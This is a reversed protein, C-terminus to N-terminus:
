FFQHIMPWRASVKETDSRNSQAEEILQILRSVASNNATATSKIVLQTNGTNITGGSVKDGPSKSVPRSEGTLSCEDVTSKGEIVVGDCPIKDGTRVSVVAGVAVSNAPLIVVQKTLPNIVNAYEPRLSVIASLANRARATARTELTESIAFLFTVAAAETYEQLPLAGLVAFLIMCNVDFRLRRLTKCAKIAVPPLGFAVSLLAVYKLYEWNGGVLSFMSIVWFVGSLVVTWRVTSTQQEITDEADVELSSLAWMGDAGGDSLIKINYSYDALTEVIGPATLYYPNHEIDVVKGDESVIADRLHERSFEEFLCGKMEDLKVGNRSVEILDFTSKVFVDTPIGAMQQDMVTGADKIVTASFGQDTLLIAIAKARLVDVNHDVYVTRTTPNVSVEVVGPIPRLIGEVLPTESACCIGEVHFKSRGVRSGADHVLDKAAQVNSSSVVRPEEPSNGEEDSTVLPVPPKKRRHPTELPEVGPPLFFNQMALCKGDACCNSRVIPKKEILAGLASDRSYGSVDFRLDANSARKGLNRISSQVMLAASSRRREMGPRSARRSRSRSLGMATGRRSVSSASSSTEATSRRGRHIGGEIPTSSKEPAVEPVATPYKALAGPISDRSYCRGDFPAEGPPGASDHNPAAAVAEEEKAAVPGDVKAPPAAPPGEFM